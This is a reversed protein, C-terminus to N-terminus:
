TMHGIAESERQLFAQQSNKDGNFDWQGRGHKFVRVKPEIAIVIVV